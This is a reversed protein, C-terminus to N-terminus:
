QAFETKGKAPQPKAGKATILKECYALAEDRNMPAEVTAVAEGRSGHYATFVVDKCANPDTKILAVLTEPSFIM